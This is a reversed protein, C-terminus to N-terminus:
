RIPLSSVNNEAWAKDFEAQHEKTGQALGRKLLEQTIAEAAEPQTKASGISALAQRGNDPGDGTGAGASQRGTDLIPALAKTLLDAAGLPAVTEPHRAIEGDKRFVLRKGGKGDDVWDPQYQSLLTQKANEIFTARVERFDDEPIVKESKFKVGTLARDFEHAIQLRSKETQAEEWKGKWENKTEELKAQLQGILNDKDALQQKLAEAGKGNKVQEELSAKEARLAELQKQLEGGAETAKKKLSAVQQGWFETSKVGSPKETGLLESFAKDYFGHTEGVKQAIVRDEDNASLQVIKAKQEDTLGEVSALLENTLAM